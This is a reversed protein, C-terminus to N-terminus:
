NVDYCRLRKDTKNSNFSPIYMDVSGGTYGIKFDNFIKGSLGPIKFDQKLYNSRFLGFSLSPFTPYSNINLNFRNFILYNFSILNQYLSICDNFCYNIAEKKFDWINDIFKIRYDEYEWINIEPFWKFEPVSGKYNIDKFLVPFITKIVKTNFSNCLKSLYSPLLLYSDRFHIIHDNFYFQISILKGKHIITDVLSNEINILAKLIFIGDFKSFNHLYIKYNEYKKICLDQMVTKLLTYFNSYDQIWYSKRETGDFWCLLYPILKGENNQSTEIDM